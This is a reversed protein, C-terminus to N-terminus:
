SPPTVVRAVYVDHDSARDGDAPGLNSADSGFAIRGGDASVALEDRYTSAWAIRYRGSAGNGADKGEANLSVLTNKGAALDRVYVDEVANTDTAGLNGATSVFAVKSGDGVWRAVMSSGSATGTGAANASVLTTTDTALNRIFVDDGLGGNADNPVLNAATSTLLLRNPDTPHFGHVRSPTNDSGGGRIGATVLETTRTVRDFAYIDSRVHDFNTRREFALRRGDASFALLGSGSTGPLSNSVATVTGTRLDRLWVNQQDYYAVVDEAPSYSAGFGTALRRTVGTALDREYVGMLAGPDGAVLNHAESTFLVKTGARNFTGSTTNGDGGGTGGANASVLTTRGTALDRLYLNEVSGTTAPSVLDTASSAFLLKSGDPSFSPFLSRGNGAGTGAANASALRTTGSALDRVYVDSVGNGDNAGLDSAASEFAVKTDDPSLAPVLSEDNGSGTGAANVSALQSQWRPGCGSLTAALALTAAAAAAGRARRARRGRAGVKIGVQQERRTLSRVCTEM